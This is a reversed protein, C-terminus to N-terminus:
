DQKTTLKSGQFYTGWSQEKELNDQSNQTGQM